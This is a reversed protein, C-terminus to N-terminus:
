WRTLLLKQLSVYVLSVEWFQAMCDHSVLILQSAIYGDPFGNAM